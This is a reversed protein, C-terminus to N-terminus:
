AFADTRARIRRFIRCKQAIDHTNAEDEILPYSPAKLAGRIGPRFPSEAPHSNEAGIVVADMGRAQLHNLLDRAGEGVIDPDHRRLEVLGTYRM